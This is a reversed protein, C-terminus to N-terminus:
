LGICQLALEQLSRQHSPFGGRHCGGWSVAVRLVPRAAASKSNLPLCKSAFATLWPSNSASLRVTEFPIQAIAAAGRTPMGEAICDLFEM